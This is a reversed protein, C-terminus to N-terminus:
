YFERLMRENSNRMIKYKKKLDVKGTSTGEMHHVLLESDFFVKKDNVRTVEALYPEEDFLLEWKEKQAIKELLEKKIFMFSGHIAYIERSQNHYDNRPVSTKIKMKITYLFDFIYPFTLGINTKIYAWKTPRQIRYPNSYEDKNVAYVSPGVMWTDVYKKSLFREIMDNRPFEIDTNSFIYWDSEINYHLAKQYGYMLGNLYGLNYKPKFIYHQVNVDKLENELYTKGLVSEKNIVIILCIDKRATQKSLDKAYQVVEKENGYCIVVDIIRIGEIKSKECINNKQM